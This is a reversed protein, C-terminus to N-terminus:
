PRGAAPFPYVARHHGVRRRLRRRAASRPACALIEIPLVTRSRSVAEHRGRRVCVASAHAILPISVACVRGGAKEFVAVAGLALRRVDPDLATGEM